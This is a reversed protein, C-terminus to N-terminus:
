AGRRESLYGVEEMMALMDGGEILESIIYYHKDDEFLEFVKPINPHNTEELVKLEDIM